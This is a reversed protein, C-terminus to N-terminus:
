PCRSRNCVATASAPACRSREGAARAWRPASNGCTMRTCIGTRCWRATALAERSHNVAQAVLVIVLVAAGIAWPASERATLRSLRRALPHPTLLMGDAEADTFEAASEDPRPAAVSVAAAATEPAPAARPTPAPPATVAAAAPRPQEGQVIGSLFAADIEVEVPADSPAAATEESTVRMAKFSGTAATWQPDPSPEVFVSNVDTRSSDFELADEPISDEDAPAQPPPEPPQPEGGAPTRASRRPEQAPPTSAAAAASSASPASAAAPPSVAATAGAAAAQREDSLQALANFVSSCRGCRVYGQAVRLDAATVVLTLACKPCVTFM